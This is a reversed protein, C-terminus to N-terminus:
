TTDSTGENELIDAGELFANALKRMGEPSLTCGESRVTVRGDQVLARISTGNTGTIRLLGGNKWDSM